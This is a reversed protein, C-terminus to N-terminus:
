LKIERDKWTHVKVIKNAVAYYIFMGFSFQQPIILLINEFVNQESVISVLVRTILYVTLYVIFVSLNFHILVALWGFTTVLWFLLALIVSNGFFASVNKSFGNVAENFNSYMKCQITNDGTLCAIKYREKKFYRAIAIDEVMNNKMKEHPLLSKYIESRFLMFQGNAASLSPIGTKRVLILPLLSLLIFNMNPVTIKEGFTRIVQKPFISIMSLRHHNLYSVANVIIGNNVRVDADLFLLYEGKAFGSLSQCAWNKGLWGPPLNDSNVLRIRNDAKAIASVIEATRDSSHDNFVIVEIERYDQHLVDNLINTINQEENRAPILVSVLERMALNGKKLRSSFILNALAILLQLITLVLVFWAFYVM